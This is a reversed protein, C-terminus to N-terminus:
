WFRPIVFKGEGLNPSERINQEAYPSSLARKIRIEEPESGEPTVLSTLFLLSFTNSPSEERRLGLHSEPCTKFPKKSPFGKLHVSGQAKWLLFFTGM